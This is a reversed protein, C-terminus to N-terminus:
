KDTVQKKFVLSDLSITNKDYQYFDSYMSQEHGKGDAYTIFIKDGDIKYKGELDFLFSKYHIDNYHSFTVSIFSAAESIFTGNLRYPWWFIKVTFLIIILLVIVILLNERKRKNM